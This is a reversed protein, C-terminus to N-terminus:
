ARYEAAAAYSLLTELFQWRRIQALCHYIIAIIELLETTIRGKKLSESFKKCLPYFLYLAGTAAILLLPAYFWTGILAFGMLGISLNIKRDLKKDFANAQNDGDVTVMQKLQQHRVEGGNLSIM